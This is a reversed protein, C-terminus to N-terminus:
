PAPDQSAPPETPPPSVQISMTEFPMEVGKARLHEYLRERLAFRALVHQKEDGLWVRFQMAVNYDNIATIVVRPAPESLYQEDTSILEMFYGRIKDYDENVGVTMEIDLRLHPFNTYSVVPSNIISANPIAVMKGDVTVLRTSRMTIQDIRGYYGGFEVLDGLVFPRDWFIFIGSILNSLTDKAAFGLTLGAVGLSTLLAKTDIGIESLASIAGVIIISYRLVTQIFSVLTLDINLRGLVVKLVRSLAWWILMFVAFVILGSLLGPLVKAIYAAIADPSFRLALRDFIDQLM